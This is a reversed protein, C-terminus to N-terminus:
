PGPQMIGTSLSQGQATECVSRSSSERVPQIRYAQLWSDLDARRYLIKGRLKIYAPGIGLARYRALTRVGVKVYAAAENPTLNPSHPM